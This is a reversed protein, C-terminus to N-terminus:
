GAWGALCRTLAIRGSGRPSRAANSSEFRSAWPPSAAATRNASRHPSGPRTRSFTCRAPAPLPAPAAGSAFATDSTAPMSAPASLMSSTSTSRCPAIAFAYRPTRAGDVTPLKRRANVRPCTRWSSGSPREGAVRGPVAVQQRATVLHDVQVDVGLHLLDVPGGFLAGFVAVGLSPGADGSRSRRRGARPGTFTTERSRLPDAPEALPAAESIASAML